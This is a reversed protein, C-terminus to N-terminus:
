RVAWSSCKREPSRLCSCIDIMASPRLSSSMASMAAQYELMWNETVRGCYGHRGYARKGKALASPASTSRGCHRTERWVYPAVRVPIEHRLQDHDILDEYGLAIGFVRQGVLTSIRHEVAGVTRNDTFCAAFRDVLRIARDTAGLLLRRCGLHHRWRRM